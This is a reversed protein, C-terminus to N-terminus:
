GATIKIAPKTNANTNARGVSIGPPTQLVREEHTKSGGRWGGAKKLDSKFAQTDHSM